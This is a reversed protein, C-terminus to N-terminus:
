GFGHAVDAMMDAGSTIDGAGRQWQRLRAYRRICWPSGSGLRMLWTQAVAQHGAHAVLLSERVLNGSEPGYGFEIM